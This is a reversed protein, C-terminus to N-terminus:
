PRVGGSIFTPLGTGAPSARARPEVERAVPPEDIHEALAEDASASYSGSLTKAM